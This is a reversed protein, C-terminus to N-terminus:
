TDNGSGGIINEANLINARVPSGTTASATSAPTVPGTHDAYTVTDTGQGADLTDRGPGGALVDDQALGRRQRALVGSWSTASGIEALVDNGSGGTITEVQLLNDAEGAQGDNALGDLRVSLNATRDAYTVADAGIGGDLVDAGPGGDILDNGELGLIHNGGANGTLVDAASSGVIDEVDSHINDNEGPRGDNAVDDLRVAVGIGRDTYFDSYSVADIGDGGLVNTPGDGSEAEDDGDGLLVLADRSLVDRVVDNGASTAVLVPLDTFMQVLDDGAGTLVTVSTLGQIPCQVINLSSPRVCPDVGVIGHSFDSVVIVSGGSGGSVEIDSRDDPSSVQLHGGSLIRVVTPDSPAVSVVPRASAVEQGCWLSVAVVAVVAAVTVLRLWRM